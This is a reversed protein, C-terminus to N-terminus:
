PGCVQWRGVPLTLPTQSVARAVTFLRINPHASQAIGEKANVLNGVGFEMNSQGSCLWVDGILINKLTVSQPGNVTLTYPGGAKFPGIRAVWKGDPGAIVRTAQGNLRVNVANGPTTWGWVPDPIGRQLVMDDTFLPHLFPKAEDACAATLGGLILAALLPLLRTTRYTPLLSVNPKEKLRMVGDYWVAYMM